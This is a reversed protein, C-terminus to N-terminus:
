NSRVMQKFKWMPFLRGPCETGGTYGPTTNHGYIRDSSIGYRKQLFQVLKKLSAMQKATPPKNNFNGVLCIGIGYTNAYNNPTGGVHAGPIQEKWRFTTEIIGDREANGNCIVFDYGVGKWNREKHWDDFIAANGFDSASHHIVIMDWKHERNQPPYWESPYKRFTTSVEPVRTIPSPKYTTRYDQTTGTIEPPTDQEPGCGVFFLIMVVCVFSLVSTKIMINQVLGKTLPLEPLM